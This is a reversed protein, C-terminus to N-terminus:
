RFKNMNISQRLIHRLLLMHMGKEHGEWHRLIGEKLEAQSSVTARLTLWCHCSFFHIFKTIVTLTPVLNELSSAGEGM